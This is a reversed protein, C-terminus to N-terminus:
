IFSINQAEINTLTFSSAIINEFGSFVYWCFVTLIETYILLQM